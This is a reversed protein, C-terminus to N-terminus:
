PTGFLVNVAPLWKLSLSVPITTVLEQFKNSPIYLLVCHTKTVYTEQATANRYLQGLEGFSAQEGLEGLELPLDIESSVHIRGSDQGLLESVNESTEM